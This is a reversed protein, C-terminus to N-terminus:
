AAVRQRSTPTAALWPRPSTVSGVSPRGEASGPRDYAADTERTVVGIGTLSRRHQPDDGRRLDNGARRAPAAAGDLRDARRDRLGCRGQDLRHGDRAADP